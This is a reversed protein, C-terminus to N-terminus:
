AVVTTETTINEDVLIPVGDFALARTFINTPSDSFGPVTTFSTGKLEQVYNFVAKSCFFASPKYPLMATIIQNFLSVTPKAAATVNAMRGVSLVDYVVFGPQFEFETVYALYDAADADAIYQLGMDLPTINKGNALIGEVGKRRGQADAADQFAVAYISQGSTGGAGICTGGLTPLIKIIGDFEVSTTTANGYWAKLNFLNGMAAIFGADEEARFANIGRLDAEALLKDVTSRGKIIKAEVTIQEIVSKSAAVGQNFGKFAVTPLGIRRSYKYAIGTIPRFPLLALLANSQTMSEVVGVTADNGSRKALDLLTLKSM